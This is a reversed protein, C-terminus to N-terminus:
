GGVQTAAALANALTQPRLGAKWATSMTDRVGSLAAALADDPVGDAPVSEVRATQLRLAIGNLAAAVKTDGQTERSEALTRLGTVATGSRMGRTAGTGNGPKALLPREYQAYALDYGGIAILRDEESLDPSTVVEARLALLAEEAEAAKRQALLKSIAQWRQHLPLAALARLMESAAAAGAAPFLSGTQEIALVCYDFGEPVRGSADDRRRLRNDSVIFDSGKTEAPLPGSVLIYGSKTLAMGDMFAFRPQISSLSFMATVRDYLKTAVGAAAGIAAGGLDESVDAALQLVSHAIDSFPVRFLGVFLALNDHKVPARRVVPM